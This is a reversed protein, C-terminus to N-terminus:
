RNTVLLVTELDEEPDPDLLTRAKLTATNLYRVQGLSRFQRDLRIELRELDDAPIVCLVPDRSGLFAEARAEDFLDVQRLRTYFVLNRVFVQYAGVRHGDHHARVLAAVREVPEPGGMSFVTYHLTLVTAAAAAAVAAPQWRRRGSLVAGMVLLGGLAPVGAAIVTVDPDVAVLLARARYLLAGLALLVAGAAIGLAAFLPDRRGARKAAIRQHIARALLIALPTLAPLIYRPQKGVSLSYFVLPAGAWAILRIEVAALRRAGRAVRVLPPVWLLMFPSWPLLGGAAVPLYFFLSRPENYRDTAFREVNEAIFFRHLYAPGHVQVMAAYWPLAIAAFLLGALLLDRTRWPLGGAGGSRWREWALVPGVVLAPLVVAVPGKTLFGLAMAVSALLLWGRGKASRTGEHRGGTSEFAAWAALAIFFTLPLDPLAQRAMFFVGFSTAAIVGAILGTQPDYWRRGCLWALLVLGLGSGAAFLRAQAPGIGATQYTGAVLWYFLIPKQFRFEYNYHPTVWDGREVMERGAEAYFAEDSDGIAPRGLGAFFTLLCLTTLLLLARTL